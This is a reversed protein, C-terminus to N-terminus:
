LGPDFCTVTEAPLAFDVSAPRTDIDFSYCKLNPLNMHELDALRLITAQLLSYDTRLITVQPLRFLPSDILALPPDGRYLSPHKFPLLPLHHFLSLEIRAGLRIRQLIGNISSRVRAEWPGEKQFTVTFDITRTKGCGLGLKFYIKDEFLDQMHVTVKTFLHQELIPVSCVQLPSFFGMDETVPLDPEGALGINYSEVRLGTANPFLLHQLIFQLNCQILRVYKLNPHVLPKAESGGSFRLFETLRLEELHHARGILDFLSTACFRHVSHSNELRLAVLNSFTTIPWPFHRNVSADLVRLSAFSSAFLGEPLAPTHVLRLLRPAPLNFYAIFPASTCEVEFCVFRWSQLRLRSLLAQQAPDGVWVICRAYIRLNNSRTEAIELFKTATSITASISTDFAIDTFLGDLGCIKDNWSRCVGMM